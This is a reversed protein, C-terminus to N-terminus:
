TILKLYELNNINKYKCIAESFHKLEFLNEFFYKTFEQSDMLLKRLLVIEKKNYSQAIKLYYYKYFTWDNTPTNLDFLCYQEEIKEQALSVFKNNFNLINNNM